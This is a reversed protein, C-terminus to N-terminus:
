KALVHARAEDIKMSSLFTFMEQCLIFYDLVSRETGSVTVRHRTIVGQCLDAANCIVLNNRECLAILLDGNGSRPHPDYRIIDPGLKANADMEICILNNFMKANIVEQELRAYFKIRDEINQYEQPGYGNIFRCNYNGIKAQVVLIEIEDEGGSIYVPHLNKHIGTLISGGTPCNERVVEFIEYNDIKIQGKRGVKTEQLFFVGPQFHQINTLLSDKKGLIGNCNTGFITLVKNRAKKKSKSNKVSKKSKNLNKVKVNKPRLTSKKTVM